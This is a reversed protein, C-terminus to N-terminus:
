IWGEGPTPTHSVSVQRIRRVSSFTEANHNTIDVSEVLVNHEKEFHMILKAIAMELSRKDM